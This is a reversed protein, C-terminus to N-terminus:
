DHESPLQHWFNTHWGRIYNWYCFQLDFCCRVCFRELIHLLYEFQEIKGKCDEKPLNNLSVAIRAINSPLITKQYKEGKHFTYQQMMSDILNRWNNNWIMTCVSGDEALTIGKLSKFKGNYNYGRHLLEAYIDTGTLEMGDKTSIEDVKTLVSDGSSIINIAGTVLLQEGSVFEFKGTGKQIM